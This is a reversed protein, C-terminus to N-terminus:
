AQVTTVPARMAEGYLKTEPESVGAAAARM